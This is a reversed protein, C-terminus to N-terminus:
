RALGVDPHHTRQMTVFWQQRIQPAVWQQRQSNSRSSQHKQPHVDLGAPSQLLQRCCRRLRHNEGQSLPFNRFINSSCDSGLLLHPFILGPCEFVLPRAWGYHTNLHGGLTSGAIMGVGFCLGMKSLADARTEPESLDTVVMQSAVLFSKLRPFLSLEVTWSGNSSVRCQFSVLYSTCSSRPCNTFLCCPPTTPPPSCSSSFWLPLVRWAWLRAPELCIELGPPFFSSIM